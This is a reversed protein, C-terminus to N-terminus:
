VSRAGNAAIRGEYALAQDGRCRLLPEDAHVESWVVEKPGDVPVLGQWWPSLGRQTRYEFTNLPTVETTLPDTITTLTILKGLQTERGDLVWISAARIKQRMEGDDIIVSEAVVNTAEDFDDPLVKIKRGFEIVSKVEDQSDCRLYIKHMEKKLLAIGALVDDFTQDAEEFAVLGLMTCSHKLSPGNLDWEGM